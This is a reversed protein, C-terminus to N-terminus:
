VRDLCQCITDEFFCNSESMQEDVVRDRFAEFSGAEGIEELTVKENKGFVPIFEFFRQRFKIRAAM